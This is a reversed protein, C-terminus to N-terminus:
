KYCYQRTTCYSYYCCQHTTCYSYYCYQHPSTSSSNCLSTLLAQVRLALALALAQVRLALALALAQVRLALALGSCLIEAKHKEFACLLLYWFNQLIKFSDPLLTLDGNLTLRNYNFHQFEYLECQSICSNVSECDHSQSSRLWLWMVHSVFKVLEQQVQHVHPNWTDFRVHASCSCAYNFRKTLIHTRCLTALHGTNYRVTRYKPWTDPIFVSAIGSM